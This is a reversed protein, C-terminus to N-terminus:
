RARGIGNSWPTATGDHLLPDPLARQSPFDLGEDSAEFAHLRQKSDKDWFNFTGDAGATAFTGHDEHFFGCVRRSSLSRSRRPRVSAYLRRGNRGWM